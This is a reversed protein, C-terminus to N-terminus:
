MIATMLIVASCYYAQFRQREIDLEWHGLKAVQQAGALSQKSLRLEQLLLSMRLLYRIRHVLLSHNIPKTFFDTAGAEYARDISSVDDLGTLMIIPIYIGKPHSRLHECVEFGDIDPLLADLLILDPQYNVLTELVVEGCDVAIVQFNANRLIKGILQREVPNDEVVLITTQDVNNDLSSVRKV